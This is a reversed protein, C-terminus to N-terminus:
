YGTSLGFHQGYSMFDIYDHANYYLSGYRELKKFLEFEHTIYKKNRIFTPFIENEKNYGRFAYNGDYILSSLTDILKNFDGQFFKKRKLIRNM